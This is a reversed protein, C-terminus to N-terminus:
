GPRRDLEELRVAIRELDRIFEAMEQQRSADDAARLISSPHVTATVLPALDSEFFEGRQRTVRFDKGLLGQAATSGLCVVIKPKVNGIEAELWPKCASVEYADPKDHLRRKGPTPSATPGHKWKFHKVINTVYVRSRDIGAARLARDFLQGAPGVFPAGAVDERDGPQEGVFMVESDRPGEGFVAQTAFAYLGCGKCRQVADRMKPLTPDPPCSM